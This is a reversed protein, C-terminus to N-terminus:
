KIRKMGHTDTHANASPHLLPPLLPPPPPTKTDIGAFTVLFVFFCVWFGSPIDSCFNPARELLGVESSLVPPPVRRLLILM